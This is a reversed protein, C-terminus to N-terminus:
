RGGHVACISCLGGVNTSWVVFESVRQLRGLREVMSRSLAAVEPRSSKAIRAGKTETAPITILRTDLDIWSWRLRTTDVPRMLSSLVLLLGCAECARIVGEAEAKDVTELVARLEAATAVRERPRTPTRRRRGIAKAPNARDLPVGCDDRDSAYSWLNGLLGVVAKATFPTSKLRAHLDIVDGGRIEAMPRRGLRPELHKSFKNRYDQLTRPHLRHEESAVFREWVDALTVGAARREVAQEHPQPMGARIEALMTAAKERAETLTLKSPDASRRASWEGLSKYRSDGVHDAYRVIFSKRGTPYVRVGLGPIRDDWTVDGRRRQSELKGIM